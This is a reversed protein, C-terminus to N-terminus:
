TQRFFALWKTRLKKQRQIGRDGLIIHALALDLDITVPKRGSEFTSGFTTEPIDALPWVSLQSSLKTQVEEATIDRGGGLHRSPTTRV